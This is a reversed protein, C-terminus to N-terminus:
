YKINFSQGKPLAQIKKLSTKSMSAESILQKLHIALNKSFQRDKHTAKTLLYIRAKDLNGKAKILLNVKFQKKEKVSAVYHNLSGSIVEINNSYKWELNLNNLKLNQNTFIAELQYLSKTDNKTSELLSISINFPATLKYSALQRSNQNVSKKSLSDHASNQGCLEQNNAFLQFNIPELTSTQLVQEILYTGKNLNINLCQNYGQDTCNLDSSSQAIYHAPPILNTNNMPTRIDQIHFKINEGKLGLFVPGDTNHSYELVRKNQLMYNFTNPEKTQTFQLLDQPSNCDHSIQLGYLSRFFLHDPNHQMHLDRLSSWPIPNSTLQFNQVENFLGMSTFLNSKFQPSTIIDWIWKFDQTTGSYNDDDGELDYNQASDLIDWFFRAIAFERYNGEGKIQPRDQILPNDQNEFPIITSNNNGTIDLYFSNNLVAAQFFDAFGESWALRPDISELGYHVGGPSSDQSFASALFHAYEHIIVSNDFEDTDVNNDSIGNIGGLIFIRYYNTNAASFNLFFSVPTNPNNLYRNPNLGPIWYVELFPTNDFAGSCLNCNQTNTKLFLNSEVVQDLINFAGAKNNQIINATLNITSTNSTNFSHSVFYSLNKEPSNMVALNAIESNIIHSYVKIEYQKNNELNINFQGYLGTNGCYVIKGESNTISYNAYRISKTETTTILSPSSNLFKVKSTKTMYSTSISISEEPTNLEEEVVCTQVKSASTNLTQNNNNTDLNLNCSILFVGYCITLFFDKM